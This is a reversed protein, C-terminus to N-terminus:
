AEDLAPGTWKPNPALADASRTSIRHGDPMTWCSRLTAPSRFTRTRSGAGYGALAGGPLFDVKIQDLREYPLRRQDRFFIPHFFLSVTAMSVVIRNRQCVKEFASVIQASANSKGAVLQIQPVVM